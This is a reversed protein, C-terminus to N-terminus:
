ALHRLPVPREVQNFFDGILKAPDDRGAYEFDVFGVRGGDVLANHFGFDSPSLIVAEDPLRADIAIGRGAARAQLEREVARWGPLLDRTVFDRVEAQLAAA